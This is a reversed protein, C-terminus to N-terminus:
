ESSAGTVIFDLGAEGLMAIADEGGILGGRLATTVTNLHNLVIRTGMRAANLRNLVFDAFGSSSETTIPNTM